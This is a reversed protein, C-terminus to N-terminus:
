GLSLFPIHPQCFQHSVAVSGRQMRFQSCCSLFFVEKQFRNIEYLKRAWQGSCGRVVRGELCTDELHTGRVGLYAQALGRKKCGFLGLFTCHPGLWGVTMLAQHPGEEGEESASAVTRHSCCSPCESLLPCWSHCLKGAPCRLIWELM